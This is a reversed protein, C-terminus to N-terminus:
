PRSIEDRAQLDFSSAQLSPFPMFVLERGGRQADATPEIFRGEGSRVAIPSIRRFRGNPRPGATEARNAVWYPEQARCRIVCTPIPM